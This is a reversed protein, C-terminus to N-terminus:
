AQKKLKRRTSELKRYFGKANDFLGNESFECHPFYKELEKQYIASAGGSFVYDTLAAKSVADVSTFISKVHSALCDAVVKDIEEDSHTNGNRELIDIIQEHKLGRHSLKLNIDVCLTHVGTQLSDCGATPRLDHVPIITSNLGGNDVLVLKKGQYKKPNLYLLGLGEANVEVNVIEFSYSRDGVKVSHVGKYLNIFNQHNKPNLYQKIPINIGIWLKLDQRPLSAKDILETIMKMTSVVHMDIDKETKLHDTDIAHDSDGVSYVVDKYVVRFDPHAIENTQVVNTRFVETIEMEENLKMFGKTNLKGSDIVMSIPQSLNALNFVKEM